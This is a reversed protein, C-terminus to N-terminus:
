RLRSCRVCLLTSCCFVNLVRSSRLHIYGCVKSYYPVLHSLNGQPIINLVALQAYHRVVTAMRVVCDCRANPYLSLPWGCANDFCIKDFIDFIDFIDSAGTDVGDPADRDSDQEPIDSLLVPNALSALTFETLRGAMSEPFFMAFPSPEKGDSPHGKIGVSLTYLESLAV